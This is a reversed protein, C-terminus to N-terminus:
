DSEYGDKEFEDHLMSELNVKLKEVSPPCKLMARTIFPGERKPRMNLIDELLCKFNAELEAKDMSLTGIPSDVWGYDLEIEDRLAIYQVGTKFGKVMEGINAGLTGQKLSPFKKKLVGKLSVLEPLINPHALIYQFDPLMVEGREVKKVVDVDGVLTAGAVEAEERIEPTKCFVLISRDENTNFGHPIKALRTFPDVYKNKKVGTMDLEIYAHLPANPLNYIDPHHTERHCEVADEFNYIPWRYYHGVWVNDSPLPKFDDKIRRPGTSKPKTKERLKQPIFEVKKVEVKVKKKRAKERTGKRAAYTRVQNFICSPLLSDTKNILNFAPLSCIGKKLLFM